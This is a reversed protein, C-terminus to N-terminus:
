GQEGDGNSGFAAMSDSFGPKGIGLRGSPCLPGRRVPDKAGGGVVVVRGGAPGRRVARPDKHAEV